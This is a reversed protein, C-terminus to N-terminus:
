ADRQRGGLTASFSAVFAGVLLSIFLWIAAYASTKRAQDATQRAQTQAEDVASKIRTFTATVRQEAEPQNLGTRRAVLQGLYQTDEAPLSGTHIANMFIRTVEAIPAPREQAPALGSQANAPANVTRRFLSDLAYRMGAGANDTNAVAAGAKAASSAVGQAVSAGVKAGGSAIGGLVSGLLLATALTAISWALFGHATDRFYVEDAHVDTWKARLRGALYGGLGAAVLQTFTVWAITSVGLTKISAGDNAWPSVFSFGLGTGLVLLLLSLAAAGAAGALIAGWSVARPSLQTMSLAISDPLALQENITKM